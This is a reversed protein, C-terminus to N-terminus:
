SSCLILRASLIFLHCWHSVNQVHFLHDFCGPWVKLMITRHCKSRGFFWRHWWSQGCLDERSSSRLYQIDASDFSDVAMRGSTIIIAWRKHNWVGFIPKVPIPVQIIWVVTFIIALCVIFYINFQVVSNLIWFGPLLAIHTGCWIKRSQNPRYLSWLLINLLHQHHDIYHFCSPICPNPFLLVSHTLTNEGLENHLKVSCNIWLHLLSSYQGTAHSYQDICLAITSLICWIALYIIKFRILAVLAPIISPEAIGYLWIRVMSFPKWLTWINIIAIILLLLDQSRPVNFHADISRWCNKTKYTCYNYPSTTAAIWLWWVPLREKCFLVLYLWQGTRFILM